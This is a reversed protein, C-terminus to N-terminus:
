GHSFTVVQGDKPGWDKYYLQVGDQTTIYSGNQTPTSTSM